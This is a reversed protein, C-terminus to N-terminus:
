GAAADSDSTLLGVGREVLVAACCCCGGYGECDYWGGGRMLNNQVGCGPCVPIFSPNVQFFTSHRLSFVANVMELGHQRVGQEFFEFAGYIRGCECTFPAYRFNEIGTVGLEKKIRGEEESSIPKLGVMKIREPTWYWEKIEKAQELTLYFSVSADNLIAAKVIGIMTENSGSVVLKGSKVIEDLYQLMGQM